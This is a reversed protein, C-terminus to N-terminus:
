QHINPTNGNASGNRLHGQKGVDRAEQIEYLIRDESRMLSMLKGLNNLASVPRFAIKSDHQSVYRKEGVDWKRGVKDHYSAPIGYEDIFPRAEPSVGPQPCGDAVMREVDLRENM